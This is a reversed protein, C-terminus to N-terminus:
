IVVQTIWVLVNKVTYSAQVFYFLKGQIVLLFQNGIWCGKIYHCTERDSCDCKYECGPGFKDEPCNLHQYVIVAVNSVSDIGMVNLGVM